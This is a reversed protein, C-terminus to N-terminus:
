YVLGDERSVPMLSSDLCSPVQSQILLEMKVEVAVSAFAAKDDM